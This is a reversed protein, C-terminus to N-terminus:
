PKLQSMHVIRDEAHVQRHGVRFPSLLLIVCLTTTGQHMLGPAIPPPAEHIRHGHAPEITGYTVFIHPVRAAPHGAHDTKVCTPVSSHPRCGRAGTIPQESGDPSCVWILFLRNPSVQSVFHLNGVKSSFVRNHPSM